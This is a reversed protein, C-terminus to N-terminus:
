GLSAKLRKTNYWIIYDNIIQIFAEITVGAFNRGYFMENKMRGFFGGCESNDPSCGKKSMSRTFGYENMRNIWGPWRYHCGRDSHIIPKDEEKIKSHYDSLMNNVLGANPSTSVTLSPVMGDFCDVIRSLYVKGAPIAFETIDTLVKYNPKESHFDRNIINEVPESIEGLYSNYKKLKRVKVVLNNDKMIQRVIKESVVINERRLLANIRRYGYREKNDKFLQVIKTKIEEYKYPLQQIKHQYCYSSKSIELKKLFLAM